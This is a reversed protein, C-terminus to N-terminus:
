LTGWDADPIITGDFTPKPTDTEDYCLITTETGGEDIPYKWQEGSLTSTISFDKIYSNAPVSNPGGSGENGYLSHISYAGNWGLVTPNVVGNVTLTANQNGTDVIDIQVVADTGVPVASLASPFQQTAATDGTIWIASNNRVNINASGFTFDSDCIKVITDTPNLQRRYTFNISFDTASPIEIINALEIYRNSDGFLVETTSSGTKWGEELTELTAGGVTTAAGGGLNQAVYIPETGVGASGGNLGIGGIQSGLQPERTLEAQDLLTWSPLSQELNPNDTAIGLGNSNSAVLNCGDAWSADPVDIERTARAELDTFGTPENM